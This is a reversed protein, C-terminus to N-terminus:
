DILHNAKLLEVMKFDMDFHNSGGEVFPKLSNGVAHIQMEVNRDVDFIMGYNGAAAIAGAKTSHGKLTEKKNFKVSYFPNNPQAM